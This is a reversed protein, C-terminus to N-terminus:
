HRSDGGRDPHIQQCNTVGWYYFLPNNVLIMDFSEQRLLFIYTCVYLDYILQESYLINSNQNLNRYLLTQCCFQVRLHSLSVSSSLPAVDRGLIGGESATLV